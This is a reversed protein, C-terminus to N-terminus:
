DEEREERESGTTWIGRRWPDRPMKIHKGKLKWARLQSKKWTKYRDKFKQDIAEFICPNLGRKKQLLIAYAPYSMNLQGTKLLQAQLLGNLEKSPIQALTGSWLYHTDFQEKM